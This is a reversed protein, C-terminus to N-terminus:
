GVKDAILLGEKELLDAVESVSKLANEACEAPKANGIIHLMLEQMCAIKFEKKSM